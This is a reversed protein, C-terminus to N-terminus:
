HNVMPYKALGCGFWEELRPGRARDILTSEDSENREYRAIGDFEDVLRYIVKLQPRHRYGRTHAYNSKLVACHKGLM